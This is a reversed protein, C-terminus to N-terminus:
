KRSQTAGRDPVDLPASLIARNNNGRPLEQWKQIWVMGPKEVLEGTAATILSHRNLM